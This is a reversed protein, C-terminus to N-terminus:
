SISTALHQEKIQCPGGDNGLMLGTQIPMQQRLIKLGFELVRQIDKCPKSGFMFANEKGNM